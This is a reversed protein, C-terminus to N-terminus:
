IDLSKFFMKTGFCWSASSKRKRLMFTDVGDHTWGDAILENRIAIAEDATNCMYATRDRRSSIFGEKTEVITAGNYKM